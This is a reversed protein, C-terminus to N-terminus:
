EGTSEYLIIWGEGEYGTSDNFITEYTLVDIGLRWRGEMPSARWRGCYVGPENEMIRYRHVRKYGRTHVFVCVKVSDPSTYVSITAEGLREIKMISDINVLELPDKATYILSSDKSVIKVSDIWFPRTPSLIKAGSVAVIRWGRHIRPNGNRKLVVYRTANDQFDKPKDILISDDPPWTDSPYRHMIGTLEKTITVFASDGDISININRSVDQLERWWFVFAYDKKQSSAVSDGEPKQYDDEISFLDSYVDTILTEIATEDTERSCGMFLIGALGMIIFFKKM